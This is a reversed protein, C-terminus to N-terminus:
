GGVVEVVELRGSVRTRRIKVRVRDNKNLREFAQKDVLGVTPETGVLLEIAYMDNTKNSQTWARGGAINTNYTTGGPTYQKGTVVADASEIPLGLRDAAGYLYYGGFGVLLVLPFIYAFPNASFANM